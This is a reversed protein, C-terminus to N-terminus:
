KNKWDLIAKDIAKGLHNQFDIFGKVKSNFEKSEKENRFELVEELVKSFDFIKKAGSELRISWTDLDIQFYRKRDGSFTKYSIIGEQLHMNIANSIASKSAGLFERIEDFSKYPPEALLLYSFVRSAIPTKGFKEYVVGLDEVRQKLEKMDDM